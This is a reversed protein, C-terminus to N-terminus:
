GLKFLACHEPGLSIKLETTAAPLDALVSALLSLDLSSCMTGLVRGDDIWARGYSAILGTGQLNARLEALEAPTSTTRLELSVIGGEAEELRGDYAAMPGLVEPLASWRPLREQKPELALARYTRERVATRYRLEDTLKVQPAPPLARGLAGIAEALAREPGALAAEPPGKQPLKKPLKEGLREIAASVRGAAKGDPTQGALLAARVGDFDAWLASPDVVPEPKAGGIGFALFWDTLELAPRALLQELQAADPSLKSGEFAARLAGLQPQRAQAALRFSFCSTSARKGPEPSRALWVHVAGGFTWLHLLDGGYARAIEEAIARETAGRALFELENPDKTSLSFAASAGPPRKKPPLAAYKGRYAVLNATSVKSALGLAQHAAVVGGEPAPGKRGAAEYRAWAEEVWAKASKKLPASQTQTANSQSKSLRSGGPFRLVGAQAAEPLADVKDFWYSDALSTWSEITTEWARDPSEPIPLLPAFIVASTSM